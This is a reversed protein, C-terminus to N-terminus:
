SSSSLSNGSVAGASPGLEPTLLSILINVVGGLQSFLWASVLCRDAAELSAQGAVRRLTNMISSEKGEKM